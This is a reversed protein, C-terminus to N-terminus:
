EAPNPASDGPLEAFFFKLSLFSCALELMCEITSILASGVVIAACFSDWCSMTDGAPPKSIPVKKVVFSLGM